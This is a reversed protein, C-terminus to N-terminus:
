GQRGISVTRNDAPGEVRVLLPGGSAWSSAQTRVNGAFSLSTERQLQEDPHVLRLTDNTLVLRYRTNRISSPLEVNTTTNIRGDVAPNAGELHGAATALTRESVEEGASTQYSPVVGGFLLGMMGGVYLLAIGMSLTKGVVSSLGRSDVWFRHM